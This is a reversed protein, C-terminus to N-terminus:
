LLSRYQTSLSKIIALLKKQIKNSLLLVLIILQYYIKSMFILHSPNEASNIDHSNNNKNTVYMSPFLFLTSTLIQPRTFLFLYLLIANKKRRRKKGKFTMWYAEKMRNSKACLREHGYANAYITPTYPNTWVKDYIICINAHFNIMVTYTMGIDHLIFLGKFTAM